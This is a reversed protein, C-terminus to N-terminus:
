ATTRAEVRVRFSQGQAEELEKGGAALAEEARRGADVARTLHKFGRLPHGARRSHGPADGARPEVRSAGCKRACDRAVADRPDDAPAGPAGPFRSAARELRRIVDVGAVPGPEDGVMVDIPLNNLVGGDVLLESRRAVPPALGPIAMSAGVAELLSGKRHVIMRSSLLDASVTYLPWALQEIAVDGFVRELMSAARRARILAHRPFTYDNFPARRRTLEHTCVELMMDPPQGLAALRGRVSGHQM